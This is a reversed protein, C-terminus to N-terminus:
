IETQGFVFCVCGKPTARKLGLVTWDSLVLVPLCYPFCFCGSVLVLRLWGSAVLFGGVPLFSLVLLIQSLWGSAVCLGGVPLISLVLLIQSLWGSAVCLGGM